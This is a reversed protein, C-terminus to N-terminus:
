KVPQPSYIVAATSKLMFPKKARVPDPALRGRLADNLRRSLACEKYEDIHIIRCIEKAVKTPLKECTNIEVVGRLKGPDFVLRLLAQRYDLLEPSMDKKQVRKARIAMVNPHGILFIVMGSVLKENGPTVGDKTFRAKDKWRPEETFAFADLPSRDVINIGPQADRLVANKQNWQEVVFRDIENIKSINSEEALKRPDQEMGEVKQDLWEDHTKLSRFFSVATSKGVCVSGTLFYYYNTPCKLKLALSKIETNEVPLALLRGLAAIEGRNLFLTVLNYVEFNADTIERKQEPSLMDGDDMFRVYYHVHGPHAQASKRLLHKLTADELGLGVLLCTNQALHYSLLSYHGSASDILQDGFSDELFILDDSPRESKVNPLYGNPHYIVAKRSYLQVDSNWVTRSGREKRKEDPTRTHSLFRELTDDFNYNVTLKTMKIIPLFEKIYRDRDLLEQTTAPKKGYLADKIIQNWAAQLDSSIKNFVDLDQPLRLMQRHKFRHFLRQSVNSQTEGCRSKYNNINARISPHKAIKEVLDWWEPFKLDHGAGAGFILGFRENQHLQARMHLIARHYRLLVSSKCENQTQEAARSVKSSGAKRSAKRPHNM